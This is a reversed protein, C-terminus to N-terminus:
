TVGGGAESGALFSDAGAASASARARILALPGAGSGGRAEETLRCTEGAATSTFTIEAGSELRPEASAMSFSHRSASAWSTVLRSPLLPTAEISSNKELKLAKMLALAM